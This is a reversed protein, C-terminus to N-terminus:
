GGLVIELLRDTTGADSFQEAMAERVEAVARRRDEEEALSRILEAAEAPTRVVCRGPFLGRAAGLPAFAPWDRVVPFAGAATAELTGVPCGERLSTSLVFGVHRLHRPLERTFGTYDIRDVVDERLVRERFARAYAVDAAAHHDGFDSGILRLRWRDDERALHALVEVAFAPDKVVQAWGVVGLTRSAYPLLPDPFNAPPVINTVVHLRAHSIRERLIRM